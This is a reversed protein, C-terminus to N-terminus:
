VFGNGNWKVLSHNWIPDSTRDYVTLLLQEYTSGIDLCQKKRIINWNSKSPIGLSFFQNNPKVFEFGYQNFLKTVNLYSGYVKQLAPPKNNAIPSYADFIGSEPEFTIATDRVERSIRAYVNFEYGLGLPRSADPVLIYQQKDLPKDASLACNDNLHIELGVRAFYSILNNSLKVDIFNCSLPVGYNNLTKKIQALDGSLDERIKIFKAGNSLERETTAFDTQFNVLLMKPKNTLPSGIKGSTTKPIDTSAKPVSMQSAIQAPPILNFPNKAPDTSRPLTVTLNTIGAKDAEEKKIKVTGKLLLTPDIKNRATDRIEFHLHPATSIGSNGSLGVIDGRKVKQGPQAVKQSLHGYYFYYKGDFGKIYNGFGKKDEITPIITFDTVAYVPTGVPLGVDIAVHKSSAGQKPPTRNRPLSTIEFNGRYPLDFLKTQDINQKPPEVLSQQIQEVTVKIAEQATSVEARNTSPKIYSNRRAIGLYINDQPNYRESKIPDKSSIVRIIDGKSPLNQKLAVEDVAYFPFVQKSGADYKVDTFFDIHASSRQQEPLIAYVIPPSVGLDTAVCLAFKVLKENVQVQQQSSILEKHYSLHSQQTPDFLVTSTPDVVPSNMRTLEQLIEPYDSSNFLNELRNRGSM